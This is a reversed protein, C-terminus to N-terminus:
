TTRQDKTRFPMLCLYLCQCINSHVRICYHNTSIEWLNTLLLWIFYFQIVEVSCVLQYIKKKLNWLKLKWETEVFHSKYITEMDSCLLEYHSQSLAHDRFVTFVKKLALCFMKPSIRHILTTLSQEWGYCAVM